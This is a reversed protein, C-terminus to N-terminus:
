IFRRVIFAAAVTAIPNTPDASTVGAFAHVTVSRLCAAAVAPLACAIVPARNAEENFAGAIATLASAAADAACVPLPDCGFAGITPM